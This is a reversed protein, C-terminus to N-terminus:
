GRSRSQNKGLPAFLLRNFRAELCRDLMYEQSWLRCGWWLFGLHRQYTFVIYRFSAFSQM